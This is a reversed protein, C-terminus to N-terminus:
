SLRIMIADELLVGGVIREDPDSLARHIQLSHRIGLEWRGSEFRSALHAEGMTAALSSCPVRRARFAVM